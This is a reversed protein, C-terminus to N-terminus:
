QRVSQGQRAQERAQHAAERLCFGHQYANLAELLVGTVQGLLGLALQWPYAQLGQGPGPCQFGPPGEQCDRRGENREKQDESNKEAGRM